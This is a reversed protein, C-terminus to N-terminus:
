LRLHHFENLFDRLLGRDTGSMTASDTALKRLHGLIVGRSTPRVEMNYDPLRGFVRQTFLWDYISHTAPVISSQQAGARGTLATLM